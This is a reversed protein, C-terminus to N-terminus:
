PRVWKVKSLLRVLVTGLGFVYESKLVSYDQKIPVDLEQQVTMPMLESLVRVLSRYKMDGREKVHTKRLDFIKAM